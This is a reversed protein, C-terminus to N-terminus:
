QPEAPINMIPLTSSGLWYRPYAGDWGLALLYEIYEPTLNKQIAAVAESQAEAEATIRYAEADAALKVSDANGQAQTVNMIADAESKRKTVLYNTEAAIVDAKQQQTNIETQQLAQQKLFQMQSVSDLYANVKDDYDFDVIALQSVYVLPTEGDSSMLQAQLEGEVSSEMVQRQSAVFDYTNKGQVQKLTSVWIKEVWSELYTKGYKRHLELITEKNVQAWGRASFFVVPQGPSSSSASVGGDKAPTSGIEISRLQTNYVFVKTILPTVSKTFPWVHTGPNLIYLEGTWTNEVVGVQTPSIQVAASFVISLLLGAVVLSIPLRYVKSPKKEESGYGEERDNLFAYAFLGIGAVVILWFLIKLLVLM